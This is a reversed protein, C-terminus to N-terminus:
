GAIVPKKIPNERSLCPASYISGLEWTIAPLRPCASGPSAARGRGGNWRVKLVASVGDIEPIM